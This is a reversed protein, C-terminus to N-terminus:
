FENEGGMRTKFPAYKAPKLHTCTKNDDMFQALSLQIPLYKILTRSLDVCFSQWLFIKSTLGLVTDLSYKPLNLIYAFCGTLEVVNTEDHAGQDANCL